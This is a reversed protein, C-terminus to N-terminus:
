GAAASLIPQTSSYNWGLTIVKARLSFEGSFDLINHVTAARFSYISQADDGVVTLGKGDRMLALLISTQLWNTHEYEDVSVHNFRASLDEALSAKEDDSGLLTTSRRLRPCEAKAQGGLLGRVSRPTGSGMRRVM